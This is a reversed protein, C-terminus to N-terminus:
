ASWRPIPPSLSVMNKSAAPSVSFQLKFSDGVFLSTVKKTISISKPASNVVSVKISDRRANHKSRVIITAVGVKKATVKGGANVSVVKPNSSYWKVQRSAKAPSVSFKLSESKLTALDLVLASKALKIKTPFTPKAQAAQPMCLMTLLLAPALALSLWKRFSNSMFYDCRGTPEGAVVGARPKCASKNQLTSM